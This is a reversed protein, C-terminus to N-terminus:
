FPDTGQGEVLISKIQAFAGAGCAFCAANVHLTLNDAVRSGQWEFIQDTGDPGIGTSYFGGVETAFDVGDSGNRTTHWSATIVVRRLTREEFDISILIDEATGSGACCSDFKDGVGDYSAECHNGYTAPLIDWEAGGGEGDLWLHQWLDCDCDPLAELRELAFAESAAQAFAVYTEDEGLLTECLGALVQANGTLSADCAAAAALLAAKTPTDGQVESYLCCALERRADDDEFVALQIASWVSMAIKEFASYIGVALLAATGLSLAGVVIVAVTAGLDVIGQAQGFIADRRAIEAECFADVFRNVAYCVANDRLGDQGNGEYIIDPALAALGGTTYSNFILEWRTQIDFQFSSGGLAPKICLGFDFVPVWTEGDDYSVELLCNDLDNQRFLTPMCPVELAYDIEAIERRLEFRDVTLNDWRTRWYAPTLVAKLVAVQRETLCYPIRTSDDYASLAGYDITIAKWQKKTM